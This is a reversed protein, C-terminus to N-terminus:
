NKLEKVLKYGGHILESKHIIVLGQSIRDKNDQRQHGINRVIQKLNYLSKSIM